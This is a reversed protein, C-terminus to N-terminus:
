QQPQPNGAIIWKALSLADAESLTTQYSPMMTSPKMDRANRIWKAVEAPRKTRAIVLQNYFPSRPGHCAGCGTRTFLREAESVVAVPGADAAPAPTPRAAIPAPPASPVPTQARPAPAASPPAENRAPAPDSCAGGLLAASAVFM